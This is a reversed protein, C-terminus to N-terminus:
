HGACLEEAFSTRVDRLRTERYINAEGQEIRRVQLM